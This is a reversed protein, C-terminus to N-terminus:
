RFLIDPNQSHLILAGWKDFTGNINSEGLYGMYADYVKICDERDDKYGILDMNAKRIEQM